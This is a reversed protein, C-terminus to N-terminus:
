PVIQKVLQWVLESEFGRRFGYQALKSRLKFKNQEKSLARQKELLRQLAPLYEEEEIEEMAKRICYDSIKRLKLERRIRNRGWTKIRFKGRAFSRAFREENLFNDTILEAMIEELTDGYVGIELLKSRVEQHCRDQYACYKQLRLLAAKRSINKKTM